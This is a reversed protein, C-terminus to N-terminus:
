RLGGRRAPLFHRWGGGPRALSGDSCVAVSQRAARFQREFWSRREALFQRELTSGTGQRWSCIGDGVRGSGHASGSPVKRTDDEHVEEREFKIIFPQSAWTKYHKLTEATHRTHLFVSVLM